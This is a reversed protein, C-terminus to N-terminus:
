QSINRNIINSKIYKYTNFICLSTIFIILFLVFLVIASNHIYRLLLKTFFIIVVHHILFFLYSLKSILCILRQICEPCSIRKLSYLLLFSAFILPTYKIAQFNNLFSFKIYLYVFIIMLSILIFPLKLLKEKYDEFLFGLNFYFLCYPITRTESMPFVNWLENMIFTMTIVFTTILCSKKYCFLHFPYIIYIIIIAGLFWEGILYYNPIIEQIYGDIGLVSFIIKWYDGGWNIKHEMISKILFLPIYNIWFLPYISEFRKKYFGGVSIERNNKILTAGSLCFFLAVAFIGFGGNKFSGLYNKMGSYEIQYLQMSYHFSVIVITSFFRIIDYGFDRDKTTM